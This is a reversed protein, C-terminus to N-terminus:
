PSVYNSPNLYEGNSRIAFHLHPGTSYGTSGVKAITQGSSVQTGESVLLSSCHMYVTYIGGGHSIMIYNGASASYTSVVVEGSAAAIISSGTSASIDIGKHNSSAGETPSSRSGFGSTITSSSPCPWIFHIDGLNVTEYSKGAALAVARKEEERKRIQAEISKIADEQIKIQRDYENIDAKASSIQTSYSNMEKQKDALLTNISEQKAKIEEQLLELEEKESELQSKKEEIEKCTADYKDLMNRDYKTIKFIYEGRSLLDKINDSQMIMDIFGIDGNEYIYKIRKKMSEYQKDSADSISAIMDETLKIDEEKSSIQEDLSSMQNDLESLNNDLEKVYAAADSKLSKLNDLIKQTKEKEEELSKKKNQATDIDESTATSVFAINYLSNTIVMTCIMSLLIKKLINNDKM